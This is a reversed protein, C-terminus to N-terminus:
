PDSPASIGFLDRVADAVEDAQDGLCGPEGALDAPVRGLGVALGAPADVGAPRGAAEAELGLDGEGILIKGHLDLIVLDGVTREDIKM